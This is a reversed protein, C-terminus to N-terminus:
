GALLEALDQSNIALRFKTIRAGRKLKAELFLNQINDDYHRVRIKLREEYGDEKQLSANFGLTNFYTSTVRYFGQVPTFPDPTLYGRITQIIEGLQARPVLYKIELRPAKFKSNMFRKRLGIILKVGGVM